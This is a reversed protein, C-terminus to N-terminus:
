RSSAPKLPAPRTMQRWKTACGALIVGRVFAIAKLPWSSWGCKLTLANRKEPRNLRLWAVGRDEIEVNLTEYSTM